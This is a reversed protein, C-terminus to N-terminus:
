ARKDIVFCELLSINKLSRLKSEQEKIQSEDKNIIEQQFEVFDFGSVDEKKIKGDSLEQKYDEIANSCVKIEEKLKGINSKVVNIAKEHIKKLRIEASKKDKAIIPQSVLEDGNTFIYINM